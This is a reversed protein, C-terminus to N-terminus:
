EPLIGIGHICIERESSGFRKIGDILRNYDM